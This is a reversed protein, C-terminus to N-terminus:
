QDGSHKFLMAFFFILAWTDLSSFIFRVPHTLIYDTAFYLSSAYSVSIMILVILALTKLSM